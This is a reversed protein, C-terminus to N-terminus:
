AIAIKYCGLGFSTGKGVHLIEGARLFPMFLQINGTYTVEGILGGMKMKTNQRSSYREWDWWRLSNNVISIKEAEEIMGKHNHQPIRKECHFYYLLVVRRLLNRILMHFALDVTLRRRYLIRVPTIFNLTLSMKDNYKFDFEEQIDIKKSDFARIVKEDSNYIIGKDNHVNVLNYKGRGKGIGTKGLEDFTYIFYPLYDTARGILVLKFLITEGPEYTKKKDEPPRIIFPHPIKSYRNMHMLEADGDPFTEFVYAYICKAKLMCDTCDQRKLACVVRRFTNGFGGRFTSGKYYPLYLTEVAEITLTLENYTIVM